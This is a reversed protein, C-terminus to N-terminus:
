QLSQSELVKAEPKRSNSDCNYDHAKSYSRMFVEPTQASTHTYGRPVGVELRVATPVLELSSATSGRSLDFLGAHQADTELARRSCRARSISEPRPERSERELKGQVWGGVPHLSSGNKAVRRSTADPLQSAAYQELTPIECAPRHKQESAPQKKQLRASGGAWAQLRQYLSCCGGGRPWPPGLSPCAEQCGRRSFQLPPAHCPLLQNIDSLAAADAAAAANMRM